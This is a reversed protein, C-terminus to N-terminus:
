RLRDIDQALAAFATEGCDLEWAAHRAILALKLGVAPLDPAPSGLLHSLAAIQRDVAEDYADQDESQALAAIAAEARAFRELALSWGDERARASQACLPVVPAACAGALLARRSLKHQAAVM